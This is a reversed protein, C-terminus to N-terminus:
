NLADDQYCSLYTVPSGSKTGLSITGNLTVYKIGGNVFAAAKGKIMLHSTPDIVAKISSVVQYSQKVAKGLKAAFTFDRSTKCEDATPDCNGNNISISGSGTVRGKKDARFTLGGITTSVPSTIGFYSESCKYTGALTSVNVKLPKAHASGAAILGFLAAVLLYNKKM